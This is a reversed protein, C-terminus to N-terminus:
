AFGEMAKIFGALIALSLMSLGIQGTCFLIATSILFAITVEGIFKGM